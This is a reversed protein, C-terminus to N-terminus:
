VLRIMKEYKLMLTLRIMLFIIYKKRSKKLWVVQFKRVLVSRILLGILIVIFWKFPEILNNELVDLYYSNIAVALLMVVLIGSLLLGRFKESQLIEKSFEREFSTKIDM